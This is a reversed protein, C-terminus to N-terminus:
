RFYVKRVVGVGHCGPCKQIVSGGSGKAGGGIYIVERVGTGGCTRCAPLYPIARLEYDGGFEAYSARIWAARGALSFGEWFAEFDEEEQARSKARRAAEQSEVFRRIKEALKEREADSESQAEREVEEESGKTAGEQGLLWTGEGYSASAYRAKKRMRFAEEIHALEVSSSIAKQADSLVTTRLEVGLGEQAFALASAYTSSGAHKRSLQILRKAWRKRVFDVLAKSRANEAQVLVKRAREVMPSSPFTTEFAAAKEVAQDYYGKKRLTDVSRLYDIQEQLVASARAVEIRGPLTEPHLDPDLAQAREYHELAHAFDLIQECTEALALQDAANDAEAQASYQAYLEERSFVDLAPVSVGGQVAVVRAKPIAQLNGGAKILFRDGERSIIKGVIEEGGDLQLLDVEIQLVDASVQVYGFQKRLDKEQVPDLMSWPVRVRGGTDLRQFVIGDPNHERIAGWHISGNKLRLDLAKEISEEAAAVAVDAQAALPGPLGVLLLLTVLSAHM